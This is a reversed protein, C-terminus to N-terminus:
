GEPSLDALPCPTKVGSDWAVTAMDGVIEVIRGADHDEGQGAEVRSGITLTTHTQQTM